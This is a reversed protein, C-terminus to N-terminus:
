GGLEEVFQWRLGRLAGIKTGAQGPWAKGQGLSARGAEGIRRFLGVSYVRTEKIGKAFELM